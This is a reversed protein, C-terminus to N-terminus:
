PCRPWGYDARLANQLEENYYEFEPEVVFMLASYWHSRPNELAVPDVARFADEIRIRAGQPDLSEDGGEWEPDFYPLQSEYIYMFHVYNRFSASLLYIDGDQPLCFVKGTGPDLVVSDDSMDCLNIWRDAGPPVPDYREDLKWQHDEREGMISFSDGVAWYLGFMPNRGVPLGLTGMVDRTDPDAIEALRSEPVSILQDPGYVAELSRRSLEFLDHM